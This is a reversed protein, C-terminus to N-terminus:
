QRIRLRLQSWCSRTKEDHHDPATCPSRACFALELLPSTLHFRSEVLKGDPSVAVAAVGGRHVLRLTGLRAVAGEPLPDGVADLRPSRKSPPDDARAPIATVGMSLLCSVLALMSASTTSM